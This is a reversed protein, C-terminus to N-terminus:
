AIERVEELTKEIYAKDITPVSYGGDIGANYAKAVAIAYEQPTLDTVGMFELGRDLAAACSEFLSLDIRPSSAAEGLLESKKCHLAAALKELTELNLRREGRILKDLYSKSIGSEEALALVSM